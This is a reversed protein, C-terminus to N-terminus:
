KKPTAHNDPHTEVMPLTIWFTTGSPERPEVGISGKMQGALHKAISLGLGTGGAERSRGPDVRYFREFIRDRHQLAIGPGDDCVEIRLSNGQERTSIHVQGGANNYTIANDLLNVLIQDLAKADALATTPHAENILKIDKQEAKSALSHVAQDIAQKVSVQVINLQQKGAELRSLHLLDAVLHTLRKSNTHIADVLKDRITPDQLAGTELTEANARIVSIPTRLEHSVNAIFDQRMTELHRLDTVDHLVIIYGDSGPLTNIHAQLRKGTRPLDFEIPGPRNPNELLSLVAPVRLRAVLLDGVPAEPLDLLSAAASNMLTVRHDRDVALIADTMSELVTEFRARERALTNVTDQVENALQNLSGALGSLDDGRAIDIHLHRAGTAISKANAILSRLTRSMLYSALRSMFVAVILAIIGAVVLGFRLRNIEVRLDAKATGIQISRKGSHLPLTISYADNPWIPSAPQSRALVQGDQGIIAISTQTAQAYQTARDQLVSPTSSVAFWHQALRAYRHLELTSKEKLSRRLTRELYIGGSLGFIVIVGISAAFLKARIGM